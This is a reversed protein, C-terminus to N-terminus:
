NNSRTSITVPLTSTTTTAPATLLYITPFPPIGSKKYPDPGGYPGVDVGNFGAGVGPGSPNLVYSTDANGTGYNQFLTSMSVNQQNGNANGFQTSNAINNFAVNNNANYTGGMMVNNNIQFGWVDFAYYYCYITNNMFFGSIGVPLTIYNYYSGTSMINNQINVNSMSVAGSNTSFQYTTIGQNIVNQRIDINSVNVYASSQYNSLYVYTTIYNRKISLNSANCYISGTIYCGMITSYESGANLTINTIASNQMNAQLGTNYTYFGTNFFYGNGIITLKKTLTVATYTNPSPEVYITDGSGAATVAAPLDTFNANVGTINNVRWLAANSLISFACLAVVTFLSKKM